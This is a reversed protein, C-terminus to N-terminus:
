RRVAAEKQGGLRDIEALAAIGQAGDASLYEALRRKATRDQHAAM